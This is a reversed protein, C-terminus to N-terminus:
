QPPPGTYRARPRIVTDQAHREVLTTIRGNDDLSDRLTVAGVHGAVVYGVDSVSQM